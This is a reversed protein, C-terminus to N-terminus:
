VRHPRMKILQARLFPPLVFDHRQCLAETAEWLLAAQAPEGQAQRLLGEEILALLKVEPADGSLLAKQADNLFAEAHQLAGQERHAAAQVLLLRPLLGASPEGLLRQIAESALQEAEAFHGLRLLREAQGYHAGVEGLTYGVEQSLALAEALAAEEQEENGKDRQIKAWWLLNATLSVRNNEQRDEVLTPELLAQAQAYEGRLWAVAALAAHCYIPSQRIRIGITSPSM